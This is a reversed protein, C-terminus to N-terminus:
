EAVYATNSGRGFWLVLMWPVNLLIGFLIRWRAGNEYDRLGEEIAGSIVQKFTMPQERPADPPSVTAADADAAAREGREGKGKSRGLGERKQQPAGATDESASGGVGSGGGKSSGGGRSGRSLSPGNRKARAAIRSKARALPSKGSSPLTAKGAAAAAAAAAATAAVNDRSRAAKKEPNKVILEGARTCTGKYTFVGPHLRSWNLKVVGGVLVIRSVNLFLFMLLTAAVRVTGAHFFWEVMCGAHITVAQLLEENPGVCTMRCTPITDCDLAIGDEVKWNATELTEASCAPDSLLVELPVFAQGVGSAYNLPCQLLNSNATASSCTDNSYGDYGCCAGAYLADMGATDICSALTAAATVDEYHAGYMSRLQADTEALYQRVDATLEVCLAGRRSTHDEQYTWQDRNGEEAAYNYAVSYVNQGFFSGNQSKEVCGARYDAFLPGYVSALNYLVLSLVVASFLVTTAPHILVRVVGRRLGAAAGGASAAAKDVRVDADPLGLGGRSWFRVFLRLSSATRFIYDAALLLLAINGLSVVWSDFSVDTATFAAFTYDVPSPLVTSAGGVLLTSNLSPSAPFSLNPGAPGLGELLALSRSSYGDAEAQFESGASDLLASSDTSINALAANTLARWEERLAEVDATIQGSRSSVGDSYNGYAGSVTEWIESSTLADGFDSLVGSASPVEVPPITFDSVTLVSWPGSGTIDVRHDDLLLVVGSYFAIWNDYSEEASAKYAEYTDAYEQFAARAVELQYDLEERAADALERASEVPCPAAAAAGGDDDEGRLSVCSVLADGLASIDELSESISEPIELTVNELLAVADVAIEFTAATSALSAVSADRALVEFNSIDLDCYVSQRAVCEQNAERQEQVIYYAHLVATIVDTLSPSPIVYGTVDVVVSLSTSWLACVALICVALRGILGPANRFNDWWGWARVGSGSDDQKAGLGGGPMRPPGLERVARRRLRAVFASPRQLWSRRHDRVPPVVPKQPKSAFDYKAARAEHMPSSEAAGPPRWRRPVNPTFWRGFWAGGGVLPPTSTSRLDHPNCRDKGDDNGGASSQRAFDRGSANFWPSPTMTLPTSIRGATVTAALDAAESSNNENDATLDVDDLAPLAASLGPGGFGWAVVGNPNNGNGRPRSTDGSRGDGEDAWLDDPEGPGSQGEAHPMWLPAVVVEDSDHRHHYYRAPSPPQQPNVGGAAATALAGGGGTRFSQSFPSSQEGVSSDDDEGDCGWSTTAHSAPAMDAGAPAVGAAAAAAAAGVGFPQSLRSPRYDYVHEGDDDSGWVTDAHEERRRVAPAEEEDDIAVAAM